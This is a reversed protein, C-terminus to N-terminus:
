KFKFLMLVHGAKELALTRMREMRQAISRAASTLETPM